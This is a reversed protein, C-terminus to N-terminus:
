QIDRLRRVLDDPLACSLNQKAVESLLEDTEVKLELARADASAARKNAREVALRVVGAMREREDDRAQEVQAVIEAEGAAYGASYSTKQVGIIILAGAVLLALLRAAPSTLLGIVVDAWM